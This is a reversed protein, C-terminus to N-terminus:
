TTFIKVIFWSNAVQSKFKAEFYTTNYAGKKPVNNARKDRQIVITDKRSLSTSKKVPEEETSISASISEIEDNNDVSKSLIVTEKRIVSPSPSDTEQNHVNSEEDLKTGTETKKLKPYSVKAKMRSTYGPGKNKLM